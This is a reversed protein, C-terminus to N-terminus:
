QGSPSSSKVLALRKKRFFLWGFLTIATAVLGVLLATSELVSLSGFLFLPTLFLGNLLLGSGALLFLFFLINALVNFTRYKSQSASDVAPNANTAQREKARADEKAKRKTDLEPYTARLAKRKRSWRVIMWIAFVTALVSLGLAIKLSPSMGSLFSAFSLDLGFIASLFIAFIFFALILSPVVASLLLLLAMGIIGIAAWKYQSTAQDPAPDSKISSPKIDMWKQKNQDILKPLHDAKISQIQVVTEARATQTLNEKELLIPQEIKLTFDKILSDSEENAEVLAVPTNTPLASVTTKQKRWEIHYGDMYRRKEVSCSSIAFILFLSFLLFPSHSFPSIRFHSLKTKM